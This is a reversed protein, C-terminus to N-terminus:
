RLYFLLGLLRLIFVFISLVKLLNPGSHFTRVYTSIYIRDGIGPTCVTRLNRPNRSKSWLRQVLFCGLSQELNLISFSRFLVLSDKAPLKPYGLRSYAFHFLFAPSTFTPKKTEWSQIRYIGGCKPDSNTHVDVCPLDILLRWSPAFAIIYINILTCTFTKSTHRRLVACSRFFSGSALQAGM